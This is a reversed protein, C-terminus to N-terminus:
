VCKQRFRVKLEGSEHCFVINGNVINGFVINFGGGTTQCGVGVLGQGQEIINYTTTTTTQSKSELQAAM